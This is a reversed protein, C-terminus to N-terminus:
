RGARPELVGRGHFGSGGADVLGEDHHNEKDQVQRFPLRGPDTGLPRGQRDPGDDSQGAGQDRLTPQDAGRTLYFDEVEMVGLIILLLSALSAQGGEAGATARDHDGWRLRVFFVVSLGNRGPVGRSSSPWLGQNRSAYRSAAKALTKTPGISVPIDTWQRVTCRIRAALAPVEEDAFGSLMLFAEDNDDPADFCIGRLKSSRHVYLCSTSVDQVGM